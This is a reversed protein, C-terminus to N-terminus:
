DIILHTRPSSSPLWGEGPCEGTFDLHSLGAAFSSSAGSPFHSTDVPLGPCLHLYQNNFKFFHPASLHVCLHFPLCTLRSVQTVTLEEEGTWCSWETVQFVCLECTYLCILRSLSWCNNNYKSNSESDVGSSGACVCVSEIPESSWCWKNQFPIKRM